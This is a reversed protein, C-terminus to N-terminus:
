DNPPETSIIVDRKQIYCVVAMLQAESAFKHEIIEEGAMPQGPIDKSNIKRSAPKRNVIVKVLCLRFKM